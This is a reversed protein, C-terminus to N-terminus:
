VSLPASPILGPCRHRECDVAWAIAGQAGIPAPDNLIGPRDAGSSM